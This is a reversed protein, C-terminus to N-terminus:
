RRGPAALSSAICWQAAWYTSLVWLSAQPLPDLFMNIALLADSCVFLLGGLAACGAERSAPAGAAHLWWTAAQAAMAALCIVYAVVPLQLAAPVGPWLQALLAVSAVGYFVWPQWVAALRTTSTFAVLYALHALLFAALGAVFGGPWMLAIDGALSFVLGVLVWTRRRPGDGARSWAYAIILVTTLPKFVFRLVEADLAHPGSFIALLASAVLVWPLTYRWATAWPIATHTM